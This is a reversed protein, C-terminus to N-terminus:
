GTRLKRIVAEWRDAAAAPAAVDLVDLALGGSLRRENHCGVCYADLIERVQEPDRDVRAAAAPPTASSGVHAGVVITAVGSALLLGALTAHGARSARKAPDGARHREFAMIPSKRRWRGQRSERSRAM